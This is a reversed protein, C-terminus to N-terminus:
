GTTMSNKFNRMEEDVMMKVLDFFNVTPKWGLIKRIKGFDGVLQISEAPRYLDSEVYVYDRYDLDLYSFACECFDRVSHVEGTAVIYDDAIPNQLMLWMAKVYDGAFGWDRYSDLNGLCLQNSLGLKIKVAENIIKKTVFGLGRRSSEHNYLIASCAFINYRQRYIKVMNHAYLKAAGYPSRPYFKTEESQPTETTAGFMESSSAQCVKIDKDVARIAELIRTLGLGNIDGIAIPDDYMGAGSSYAAFNYVEEIKYKQLIEMIRPQDQMNWQFLNVRNLLSPTLKDVAKELDRVVGVVNYGNNILLEALFSGDQGTIGTILANAM